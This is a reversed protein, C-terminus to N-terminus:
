SHNFMTTEDLDSKAITTPKTRASKTRAYRKALEEIGVDTNELDLSAVDHALADVDIKKGGRKGRTKLRLRAPSPLQEIGIGPPIGTEKTAPPALLAGVAKETTARTTRAPTATYIPYANRTSRTPRVPTETIERDDCKADAVKVLPNKRAM